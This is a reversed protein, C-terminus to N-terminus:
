TSVRRTDGDFVEESKLALLLTQYETHCRFWEVAIWLQKLEESERRPAESRLFISTEFFQPAQREQSSNKNMAM